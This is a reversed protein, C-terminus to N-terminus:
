ISVYKCMHTGYHMHLLWIVLQPLKRKRLMKHIGPISSQNDPYTALVTDVSGDWSGWSIKPMCHKLIRLYIKTVGIIHLLEMMLLHQIKSFKNESNTSISISQDM